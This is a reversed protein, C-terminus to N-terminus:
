DLLKMAFLAKCVRNDLDAFPYHEREDLPLAARSAASGAMIGGGFAMCTRSAGPYDAEAKSPRGSQPAKPSEAM